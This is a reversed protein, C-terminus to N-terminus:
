ERQAAVRDAVERALELTAAAVAPWTFRARAREWSARGMAMREATGSQMLAIVSRYLAAADGPPMLHGNSADVLEASAGVNSVLVPRAHAMAELVVTPMGEFRTPLVLAHCNRYAAELAADDVKGLLELNPPLGDRRLEALM